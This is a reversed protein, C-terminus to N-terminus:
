LRGRAKRSAAALRSQARRQSRLINWLDLLVLCPLRPQLFLAAVARPLERPVCVLMHEGTLATAKARARHGRRAAESSPPGRMDWPQRQQRHAGCAGVATATAWWSRWPDPRMMAAAIM